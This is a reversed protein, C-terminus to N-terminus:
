ALDAHVVRAIPYPEQTSELDEPGVLPTLVLRNRVVAHPQLGVGALPKRGEVLDVGRDRFTGFVDAIFIPFVRGVVAGVTRDVVKAAAAARLGGVGASREGALMLGRDGHLDVPREFAPTHPSM